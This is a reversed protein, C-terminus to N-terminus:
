LADVALSCDAKGLQQCPWLGLLCGCCGLLSFESSVTRPVKVLTTPAPADEWSASPCTGQLAGSWFSSLCVTSLLLPCEGGVTRSAKAPVTQAPPARRTAQAAPPGRAVAPPKAATLPPKRASPPVTPGRGPKQVSGHPLIIAAEETPGGLTFAFPDGQASRSYPDHPAAGPTCLLSSPLHRRGGSSGSSSNSESSSLLRCCHLSPSRMSRESTHLYGSEAPTPGRCISSLTFLCGSPM